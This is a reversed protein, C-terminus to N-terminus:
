RNATSQGRCGDVIRIQPRVRGPAEHRGGPLDQAFGITSAQPGAPVPVEGRFSVVMRPLIRCYLPFSPVPMTTASLWCCLNVSEAHFPSVAGATPLVTSTTIFPLPIWDSVRTPSSTSRRSFVASSVPLSPVRTPPTLLPRALAPAEPAPPDTM